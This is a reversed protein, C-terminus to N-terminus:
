SRCLVSEKATGSTKLRVEGNDIFLYMSRSVLGGVAQAHIGLQYQELGRLLAQFNREGINFFGSNDMIQAGGAVCVVLRRRDAGQSCVAQILAPLGTNVFMSPRAAAKRLDLNADPLMVHLLGGAGAVPDYV